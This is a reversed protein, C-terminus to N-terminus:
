VPHLNKNEFLYKIDHREYAFHDAYIVVDWTNVMFFFSSDEFLPSLIM